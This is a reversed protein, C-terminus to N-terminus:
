KPEMGEAPLTGTLYGAAAVRALAAAPTSRDGRRQRIRLCDAEVGAGIMKQM